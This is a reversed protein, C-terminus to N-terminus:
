YGSSSLPNGSYHRAFRSSGLGPARDHSAPRLADPTPRGVLGPRGGRCPTLLRRRLRVSSSPAVPSPSLGTPSHAAAGPPNTLVAPCPCDRPFSPPGGELALCGLRGIASSYRSPVTFLVGALPTFSRRFGHAWLRDSGRLATVAHRNSCSGALPRAHRPSPPPVQLRLSLSDSSPPLPM